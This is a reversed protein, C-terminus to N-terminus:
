AVERYFECGKCYAPGNRRPGGSTIGWCLGLVDM